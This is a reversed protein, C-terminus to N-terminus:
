WLYAFQLTKTEGDTGIQAVKSTAFFVQGLRERGGGQLRLQLHLGLFASWLGECGYDDFCRQKM